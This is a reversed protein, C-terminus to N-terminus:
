PEPDLRIRIQSEGIGPKSALLSMIKDQVSEEDDDRASNRLALQM